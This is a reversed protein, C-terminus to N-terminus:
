VGEIQRGDAYFLAGDRRVTETEVALAGTERVSIVARDLRLQMQALEDPDFDRGSAVCDVCVMASVDVSAGPRGTVHVLDTAKTTWRDGVAIARHCAHCHPDCGGSRIADWTTEDMVNIM